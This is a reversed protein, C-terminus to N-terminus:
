LEIKTVCAIDINQLFSFFFNRLNFISGRTYFLWSTCSFFNESVSMQKQKIICVYVRECSVDKRSFNKYFYILLNESIINAGLSM